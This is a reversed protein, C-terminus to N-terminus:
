KKPLCYLGSTSIISLSNLKLISAKSSKKPKCKPLRIKARWFKAIPTSKCTCSKKKKKKKKSIKSSVGGRVISKYLIERKLNNYICCMNRGSLISSIFSIKSREWPIRECPLVNHMYFLM